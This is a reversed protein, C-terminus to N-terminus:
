YVVSVYGYSDLVEPFSHQPSSGAGDLTGDASDDVIVRLAGLERELEDRLRDYESEDLPRAVRAATILAAVDRAVTTHTDALRPFRALVWAAAKTALRTVATASPITTASFAGSETGDVDPVLRPILDAVDQPTPTIDALTVM